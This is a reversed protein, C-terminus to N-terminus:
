IFVSNFITNRKIPIWNTGYESFLLNLVSLLRVIPELWPQIPLAIRGTKVFYNIYLFSRSSLTYPLLIKKTQLVNFYFNTYILIILETSNPM